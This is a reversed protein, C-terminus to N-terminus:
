ADGDRPRTWMLGKGIIQQVPYENNHIQIFIDGRDM